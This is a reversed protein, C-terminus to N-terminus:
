DSPPPQLSFLSEHAPTPSDSVHDRRQCMMGQLCRLECLCRLLMSGSRRMSSQLGLSRAVMTTRTRKKRDIRLSLCILRFLLRASPCSLAGGDCSECSSYRPARAGIPRCGTRVGDGPRPLVGLVGRMLDSDSREVGGVAPASDVAVGSVYIRSRDGDTDEFDGDVFDSALRLDHADTNDLMEDPMELRAREEEVVDERPIFELSVPAVMAKLLSLRSSKRDNSSSFGSPRGAVPLPPLPPFCLLPLLTGVSFFGVVKNRRFGYESTLGVVSSSFPARTAM